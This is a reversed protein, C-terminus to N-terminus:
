APASTGGRQASGTGHHGEQGHQQHEGAHPMITRTSSCRPLPPPRDLMNPPPTEDESPPLATTSFFRSRSVMTQPRTQATQMM